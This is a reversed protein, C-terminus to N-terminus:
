SEISFLLLPPQTTHTIYTLSSLLNVPLCSELPSLDVFLRLLRRTTTTPHWEKWLPITDLCWPLFTAVKVHASGSGTIKCHPCTVSTVVEVVGGGSEGVLV